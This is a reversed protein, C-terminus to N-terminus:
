LIKLDSKISEPVRRPPNLRPECNNKVRIIYEGPFCGLENFVESHNKLIEYLSYILQVNNMYRIRNVFEFKICTSLGLIPICSINYDDIVVFRNIINKNIVTRM